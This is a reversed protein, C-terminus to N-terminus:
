DYLARCLCLLDRRLENSGKILRRNGAGVRLGCDNCSSIAGRISICAFYGL